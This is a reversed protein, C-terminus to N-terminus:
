LHIIFFSPLFYAFRPKLFAPMDYYQLQKVKKHFSDINKKNNEKLVLRKVINTGNWCPVGDGSSLEQLCMHDALGGYFTSFARLNKLFDRLFFPLWM